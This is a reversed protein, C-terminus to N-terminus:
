SLTENLWGFAVRASETFAGMQCHYGAAGNFDHLTARGGLADAIKQPQGPFFGEFEANAIWVPMQIRDVIDRVNYARVAELWDYPSKIKFAWLGQTVGWRLNSPTKPDELLSFITADFVSKNKANYIELLNEDMQGVFAEHTDWIGGNLLIAALRPEFAAARAALYGGFSWGLSAIRSEDVDQTRNLLLYDVVPTVVREWDPIFGIDQYRRLSPHGPGEYSLCNWGRALAPVVVQHYIDEQSSDYGGCLILTPRHAAQETTSSYWIAEVTFGDAPIQVREGPIPLAALARDFAATQEEWLTYILPNTWDDHLYTDARRFYAAAHFWTDRVNVPDHAYRPDEARAKTENALAYFADTYTSFDGADLQKAVALIPSVDGGSYVAQALPGLLDFNFTDDESLALTPLDNSQARAPYYLGILSTLLLLCPHLNQHMVIYNETINQKIRKETSNIIQNPSEDM